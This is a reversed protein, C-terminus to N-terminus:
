SFSTAWHSLYTGSITASSLFAEELMQLPLVCSYTRFSAALQFTANPQVTRACRARRVHLRPQQAAMQVKRPIQGEVGRSRM